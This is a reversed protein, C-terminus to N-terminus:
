GCACKETGFAINKKRTRRKLTLLWAFQEALLPKKKEKKEKKKKHLISTWHAAPKENVFGWVM